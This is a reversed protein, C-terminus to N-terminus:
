GIDVRSTPMNPQKHSSTRDLQLQADLILTPLASSNGSIVSAKGFLVIRMGAHRHHCYAQSGVKAGFGEQFRAVGGAGLLRGVGSYHDPNRYSYWYSHM